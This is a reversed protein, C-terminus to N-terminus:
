GIKLTEIAQLGNPTHVLTGAVFCSQFVLEGSENVYAFEGFANGALQNLFIKSQMLFDSAPTGTASNTEVKAIKPSNEIASKLSVNPKDGKYAEDHIIKMANELLQMAGDSQSPNDSRLADKSNTFLDGLEQMSLGLTDALKKMGQSNNLISPDSLVDSYKEYTSTKSKKITADAVNQANMYTFETGYNTNWSVDGLSGTNTDYSIGAVQNGLIQAGFNITGDANLTLQSGLGLGNASGGGCNDGKLDCGFGAFISPKQSTDTSLNVGFNTGYEQGAGVSGSTNGSTTNYSINYFGGSGGITGGFNLDVGSMPNFSIGGNYTSSGFAIGGGWGSASTGNMGTDILDGLSNAKQPPTYSVSGALGMPGAVGLLMGNAFGALTANGNGSSSALAAQGVANLVRVGTILGQQATTLTTVATATNSVVGLASGIAQVGTSIWGAVASTASVIQSIVPLKSVWTVAASLANGVQAMLGAGAVTGPGPIFQLAVSAAVQLATSLMQKDQEKKAEKAAERRDFEQWLQSLMKPDMNGLSPSAATAVQLYIEEKIAQKYQGKLDGKALDAQLDKGRVFEAADKGQARITDDLNNLAKDSIFLGALVGGLAMKTLEPGLTSTLGHVTEAVISTAGVIAESMGKQVITNIPKM